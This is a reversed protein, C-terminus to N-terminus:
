AHTRGPQKATLQARLRALGRFQLQKIAGESRRLEQAIEKISKGESFRMTIVQQQDEPLQSVTRFIRARHEVEALDTETIQEPPDGVVERANQKWRDTVVNAAIRLLWVTFPIGRWDFRPLAALAKHFVDSTLDEATAQDRVRRSIYAYVRDFNLDYLDAFRATDQQAAQVLLRDGSDSRTGSWQAKSVMM